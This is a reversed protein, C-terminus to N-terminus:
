YRVQTCQALKTQNNNTEDAETPEVYFVKKKFLFTSVFDYILKHIYVSM